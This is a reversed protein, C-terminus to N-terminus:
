RPLFSYEIKAKSPSVVTSLEFSEDHDLEQRQFDLPDPRFLLESVTLLFHEFVVVLM